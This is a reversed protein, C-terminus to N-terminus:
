SIMTQVSWSFYISIVPPEGARGSYGSSVELKFRKYRSTLIKNNLIYPVPQATRHRRSSWSSHNRRSGLIFDTAAAAAAFDSKPRHPM